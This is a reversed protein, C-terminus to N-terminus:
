GFRIISIRVIGQDTSNTRLTALLFHLQLFVSKTKTQVIKQKQFSFIFIKPGKYRQLHIRLLKIKAKM